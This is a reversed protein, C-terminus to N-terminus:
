PAPGNAPSARDVAFVHGAQEPQSVPGPVIRGDLLAVRDAHGSKRSYLRAEHRLCGDVFEPDRGVQRQIAM